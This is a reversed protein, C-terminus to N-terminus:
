ACSGFCNFLIKSNAALLVLTISESTLFDRCPLNRSVKQVTGPASLQSLIQSTRLGGQSDATRGPPSLLERSTTGMGNGESEKSTKSSKNKEHNLYNPIIKLINFQSHFDDRPLIHYMEKLM